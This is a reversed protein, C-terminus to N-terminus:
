ISEYVRIYDIEFMQPFVTSPDPNGPWNGGVALNLQLYFSRDFPAPFPVNEKGNERSSFWTNQKCYLIDNVFWRFETPTWELAFTHFDESFDGKSLTFSEGTYTHPQGYHLTGHVKNPSCGILEMIDIEGCSPWGGYINMDTPMMWIAPWMGKGKPCKARIEFRGYQWDAKGKTILKASTYERGEYTEKLARIVLKGNRLYANERRDTYFQLENNGFGHGGVVYTWKSQDIEEGTFEDSWVLKWEGQSSGITNSTEGSNQIM